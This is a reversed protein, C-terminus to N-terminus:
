QGPRAGISILQYGKTSFSKSKERNVEQVQMLVRDNSTKDRQDMEM